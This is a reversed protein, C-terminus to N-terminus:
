RLGADVERLDLQRDIRDNGIERLIRRAGFVEGSCRGNATRSLDPDRQRAADVFPRSDERWEPKPEQKNPFEIRRLESEDGALLLPGVPSEMYTYYMM